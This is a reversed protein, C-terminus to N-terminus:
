PTSVFHNMTREFNRNEWCVSHGGNWFIEKVKDRQSLAVTRACYFGNEVNKILGLPKDKTRIRFLWKGLLTDEIRMAWDKESAYVFVHEIKGTMLAFNLGNREFNADCAGNLLHVTKIDPWGALMLAKLITATGESHAILHIEWDHVSYARILKAFSKARYRRTLGAFLPSTFYLLTQARSHQTNKHIWCIAQNPWNKWGGFISKWGNIGREFLFIINPQNM